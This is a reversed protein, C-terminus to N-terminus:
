KRIKHKVLAVHGSEHEFYHVETGDVGYRYVKSWNGALLRRLEKYLASNHIKVKHLAGPQKAPIWGIPVEPAEKWSSYLQIM